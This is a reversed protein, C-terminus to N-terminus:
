LIKPKSLKELRWKRWFHSMLMLIKRLLLVFFQMRFSLLLIFCKDGLSLGQLPCLPFQQIQKLKKGLHVAASVVSNGFKMEHEIVYRLSRCTRINIQINIEHDEKGLHTQFYQALRMSNELLDEHYKTHMSSESLRNYYYMIKPSFYINEAYYVCEYACVSEEGIYLTTDRCYHRECLDRLIIKDCLYPSVVPMWLGKGRKRMMKPYIEHKLREKGYLGPQVHCAYDVKKEEMIMELGFAFIDLPKFKDLIYAAEQLLQQGIWDDADVFYVYKGSAHFLGDNRAAAVGENTKHIVSIRSDLAAYRDCIYPTNDESGDDVLILEFYPYVQALISDICNEIEKENNYTPVIVSFLLLEEKEKVMKVIDGKLDSVM